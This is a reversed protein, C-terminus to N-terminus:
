FTELNNFFVPRGEQGVSVFMGDGYETGNIIIRSTSYIM